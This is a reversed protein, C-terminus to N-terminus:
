LPAEEWGLFVALAENDRIADSLFSVAASIEGGEGGNKDWLFFSLATFFLSFALLLSLLRGGSSQRTSSPFLDKDNKQMLVEGFRKGYM